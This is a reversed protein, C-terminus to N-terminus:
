GYHIDNTRAYRKQGQWANNRQMGRLIYPKIERYLIWTSPHYFLVCLKCTSGLGRTVLLKDKERDSKMVGGYFPVSCGSFLDRVIRVWWKSTLVSCQVKLHLQSRCLLEVESVSLARFVIGHPCWCDENWEKWDIVAGFAIQM